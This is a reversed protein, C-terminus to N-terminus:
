RLFASSYLYQITDTASSVINSKCSLKSIIYMMNHVNIDLAFTLEYSEINMHKLSIGFKVSIMSSKMTEHDWKSFVQDPM